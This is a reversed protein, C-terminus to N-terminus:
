RKSDDSNAQREVVFTKQLRLVISLSVPTRVREMGCDPFLFRIIETFCPHTTTVKKDVSENKEVNMAVLLVSTLRRSILIIVNTFTMM